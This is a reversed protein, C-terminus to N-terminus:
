YDLKYLSLFEDREYNDEGNGVQKHLRAIEIDKDSREIFVGAETNTSDQNLANIMMIKRRKMRSANGAVAVRRDMEDVSTLWADADLKQGVKVCFTCFMDRWEKQMHFKLKAREVPDQIAHFFSAELKSFEHCTADHTIYRSLPVYTQSSMKANKRKKTLRSQKSKLMKTLFDNLKVGKKLPLQGDRFLSILSECFNIEETKWRGTRCNSMGMDKKDDLVGHTDNSATSGIEDGSDNEFIASNKRKRGRKSSSKVISTAKKAEDIESFSLPNLVLGSTPRRCNPCAKIPEDGDIPM